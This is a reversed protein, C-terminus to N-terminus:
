FGYTDLLNLYSAKGKNSYVLINKYKGNTMNYLLNDYSIHYVYSKPYSKGAGRNKWPKIMIIRSSISSFENDVIMPNDVGLCSVGYYKVKTFTNDKVTANKWNMMCVSSVKKKSSGVNYFSCDTIVVNKHYLQKGNKASYKHTGIAGVLKQFTCNKIQVTDCCTRDHSSWNVNFGKTNKDTSDINIAEKTGSTMNGNFNCETIDVNKSSNLEIFHGTQAMNIFSIGTIHINKCHGMLIAISGKVTNKKCNFTVTGQGIFSINHAGNYGRKKKKSKAFSPEILQFISKAAKLSCKTKKGKVINVGDEFVITVNSPVYIVNTITYTGKKLVITGGGDKELKEMYSRLMYYPKTYKTYKKTTRYKKICPKTSPSVTYDADYITYNELDPIEVAANVMSIQSMCMCLLLMLCLWFKVKKM